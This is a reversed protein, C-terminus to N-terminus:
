RRVAIDYRWARDSAKSRQFLYVSSIVAQCARILGCEPPHLFNAIGDLAIIKRVTM